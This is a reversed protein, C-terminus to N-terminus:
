SWVLAQIDCPDLSQGLRLLRRQTCQPRNLIARLVTGSKKDHSCSFSTMSSKKRSGFTHLLHFHCAMQHRTVEGLFVVISEELRGQSPSLQAQGEKGSSTCTSPLKWFSPMIGLSYLFCSVVIFRKGESSGLPSFVKPHEQTRSRWLMPKVWRASPLSRPMLSCAM